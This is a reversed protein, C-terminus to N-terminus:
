FLYKSWAKANGQLARNKAHVTLQRPKAVLKLGAEEPTRDAKHNNCPKCAAVLNEWTSDGGKSRPIVHDLTLDGVPFQLGCYQCTNQDRTMIGRRTVSRTARPVRRYRVLRIVDPVPIDLHSTKLFENSTEQVVAAGKFILTMARRASTIRIPEYTANLVLVSRNLLSM